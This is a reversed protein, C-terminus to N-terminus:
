FQWKAKVYWGREVQLPESPLLDPVFEAHRAELLNQGVLSLEVGPWARWAYRLDLTTYSPVGTSGPSTAPLRGAHRLWVDLQQRRPLSWSLRLAAQHRPASAETEAAAGIAIPDGTPAEIHLNLMAYNAQLRLSPTAVWDAVVEFGSARGQLTYSPSIEQVVYPFPVTELRQVGLQGARLRDYRNHFLALDISLQPDFRHRHGLEFATVREASAATGSSLAVNRLLVAPMGASAPTVALDITADQEARSPTRVARSVAGWWAQQASPTWIMRANPQPEYGTFNNHELRAGAVLRLRDPVLTIEDHVFASSLVYTRREPMLSLTASSTVRDRSQRHSLGWIVDHRGGPAVRHQFDVDITTRQEGFM